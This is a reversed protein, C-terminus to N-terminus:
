SGPPIRGCSCFVYKLRLTDSHLPSIFWISFCIFVDKLINSAQQWIHAWLSHWQSCTGCPLAKRPSAQSAPWSSETILVTLSKHPGMEAARNPLTEGHVTVRWCRLQLTSAMLPHHVRQWATYSFRPTGNQPKLGTPTLALRMQNKFHILNPVQLIILLWNRSIIADLLSSLLILALSARVTVKPQAYPNAITAQFPLQPFM